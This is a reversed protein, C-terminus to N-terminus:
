GLSIAPAEDAVAPIAGSVANGWRLEGDCAKGCGCRVQERLGVRGFERGAGAGGLLLGILNVAM